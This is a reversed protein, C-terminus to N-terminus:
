HDGALDHATSPASAQESTHEAGQRAQSVLSRLTQASM